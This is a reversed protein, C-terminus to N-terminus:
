KKNFLLLYHYTLDKQKVLEFGIKKMDNIVEEKKIRWPPGFVRKENFDLIAILKTIRKLNELISDKCERVLDHYVNAMFVLDFEGDIKECLNIKITKIGKEEMEKFYYDDADFAYVVAGKEKFAYSFRGDGAGFDAVKMGENLDLFDIIENIDYAFRNYGGHHFHHM